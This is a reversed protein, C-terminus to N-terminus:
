RHVPQLEPRVPLSTAASRELGAPLRHDGHRDLTCLALEDSIVAWGACHETWIVASIPRIKQQRIPCPECWSEPAPLYGTSAPVSSLGCSARYGIGFSAAV